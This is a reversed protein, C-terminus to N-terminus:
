KQIDKPALVTTKDPSSLGMAKNRWEHLEKRDEDSRKVQEEQLSVVRGYLKDLYLDYKETMAKMDAAFTKSQFELEEHFHTRLMSLEKDDQDVHAKFERNNNEIHAALQGELRQQLAAGVPHSDLREHAEVKAQLTEQNKMLWETKQNLPWFVASGIALLLGVFAIITGWDTKKPGQAQTVAVVLKQIEQEVTQGQLRVVNALDKVDATLRDLGVELAAVRPELQSQRNVTTEDDDNRM